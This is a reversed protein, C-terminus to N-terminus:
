VSVLGSKLSITQKPMEAEITCFTREYEQVSRLRKTRTHM